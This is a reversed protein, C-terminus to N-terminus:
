YAWILLLVLTVFIYLMYIHVKGLQVRRLFSFVDGTLRFSPFVMQDLVTEPVNMAFAAKRPFYEPLIPKEQRSRIAASFLTAAFDAFSSATYQMTAAPRLYGCDWTGAGAIQARALRHRLLQALGAALLLLVISSCTVWELPPLAAAEHGAATGPSWAMLAPQLLKMMLQPLLGAIVCCFALLGLPALLAPTSEHASRADASRGNGLFAVGFLKIFCIAAFGGVLALLPAGLALYPTAASRAESFFGLYLFFEGVFGNLPPLGCIAVCGCLFFLGTAPMKRLLGGMRDIERTGTAHIIAGAGLFLLSKFLSHNLMHMLAAAMGLTVLLANGTSVGIVAVGAGITIIGINEISSYALLRKIDRQALAFIIGLLASTCGVALLLVGWWLPPPQFFTIIRLIGYIGIKLMVGSMMASVHSPANAHAAPLWLHLPMLGAKVGFGILATIFIVAAPMTAAPLAGTVPFVFSANVSRLTAFMVFLALTGLHTAVLYVLGAKRVDASEHETILAFYAALAMVEWAMLFLAGNRATLVFAMSASLLGIFFTLRPETEENKSAPWYGHAYVAACASILFVPLLFIASLPDVAIECPGFPLTWSITFTENHSGVLLAVAGGFGLLCGALMGASAIKQGLGTNCRLFLGPLGSFAIIAMAAFVLGAPNYTGAASMDM